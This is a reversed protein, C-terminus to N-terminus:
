HNPGIRQILLVTRWPPRFDEERHYLYGTVAVSPSTHLHGPDTIGHGHSNDDIVHTHSLNITVESTGTAAHTHTADHDHPNPTLDHGHDADHHHDPLSLTNTVTHGHPNPTVTPSLTADHDHDPIGLTNTLTHAHSALLSHSAGHGHSGPSVAFDDSASHGHSAPSVYLSLSATHEHSTVSLSLTNVVQHGHDNLYVSGTLDHDHSGPSVAFTDSITHSHPNPSVSGDVSASHTHTQGTVSVDATHSHGPDNVTHPTITGGPGSAGDFDEPSYESWGMHAHISCTSHCTGDINTVIQDRNWSIAHGAVTVATEATHITADCVIAPATQDVDVSGSFTLSQTEATAGGTITLAEAAVTFGGQITQSTTSVTIDGSLDIVVSSLDVSGTVALETENVTVSGSIVLATAAVTVNGTVTVVRNDVSLTGTLALSADAVDVTGGLTLSTSDVAVSGSLALSADATDGTYDALTLASTATQGTYAQITLSFTFTQTTLTATHCRFQQTTSNVTIGTTSTLTASTLTSLDWATERWGHDGYTQSTSSGEGRSHAQPRIPHSGGEAGIAGYDDDGVKRGVLFRGAPDTWEEWGGPITEATKGWLKISGIKDDYGGCVAVRNGSLDLSYGIVDGTQINPDQAATPTLYVRSTTAIPSTGDMDAVESGVAYAHTSTGGNWTWSSTAKWWRLQNEAEDMAPRIAVHLGHLDTNYGIVFPLDGDSPRGGPFFVRIPTSSVDAGRMDGCAYGDGCWIKSTAGTHMQETRGYTVSTVSDVKAYHLGWLPGDFRSVGEPVHVAYGNEGRWDSDGQPPNSFRAVARTINPPAVPPVPMLNAAGAHGSYGRDRSEIRGTLDLLTNSQLLQENKGLAHGLEVPGGRLAETLRGLLKPFM